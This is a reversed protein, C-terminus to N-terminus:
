YCYGPISKVVPIFQFFQIIQNNVLGHLNRQLRQQPRLGLTPAVQVEARLRLRRRM